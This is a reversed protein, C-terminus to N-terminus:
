RYDGCNITVWRLFAQVRELLNSPHAGDSYGKRSGPDVPLFLMDGHTNAEATLDAPVADGPKVSHIFRITVRHPDALKFWTNRLVQRLVRGRPDANSLIGIVVTPSGCQAAGAVHETLTSGRARGDAHADADAGTVTNTDSAVDVGGGGGGGDGGGGGHSSRLGPVGV